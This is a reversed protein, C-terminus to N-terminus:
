LEFSRIGEGKSFCYLLPLAPDWFPQLLGVSSGQLHVTEVPENLSRIDWLIVDRDGKERFGTSVFLPDPTLWCVKLGKVAIHPSLASLIPLNSNRPDFYHLNGDTAGTMLKDGSYDFSMTSITSSNPCTLSIKDQMTEIEWIKVTCDSSATALINGVTPHFKILEIKKEHGALYISAADIERHVNTSPQSPIEEPIKWIRVLTDTRTSSALITPELPSFEFDQIPKNHALTFPPHVDIKITSFVDNGSPIPFISLNGNNGAPI